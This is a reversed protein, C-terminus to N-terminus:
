AIKVVNESIKPFMSFVQPDHGPIINERPLYMRELKGYGQMWEELSTLVGVPIQEDYNRYSDIFDSCCLIKGRGTQVEICQGGPSHAGCWIGRIGPLIDCDGDMFRVRQQYNYKQMSEIDAVPNGKTFSPYALYHFRQIDESWFQFEKRQVYFIAKSYMDAQTFHDSHMHSLVVAEIEGPRVGITALLQERTALEPLRRLELEFPSIGTDLLFIHQNNKLCIFYFSKGVMKGPLEQYFITSSDVKTETVRLAYVEYM